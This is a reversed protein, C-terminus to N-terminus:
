NEIQTTFSDITPQDKFFHNFTMTFYQITIKQLYKESFQTARIIHKIDAAALPIM